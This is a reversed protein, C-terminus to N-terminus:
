EGPEPTIWRTLEPNIALIWQIVEARSLGHEQMYRVVLGEFKDRMLQDHENPRPLQNMGLVKCLLNAAGLANRVMAPDQSGTHDRMIMVLSGVVEETQVASANIRAQILEQMELGSAKRPGSMHPQKYGAVRAAETANGGNTLLAEVFIPTRDPLRQTLQLSTDPEDRNTKKTM